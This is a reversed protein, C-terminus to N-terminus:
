KVHYTYIHKFVKKHLMYSMMYGMSTTKCCTSFMMHVYRFDVKCELLRFVWLVLMVWHYNNWLEQLILHIKELLHFYTKERKLRMIHLEHIHEDHSGHSLSVKASLDLFDDYIYIVDSQCGVKWYMIDRERYINRWQKIKVNLCFNVKM